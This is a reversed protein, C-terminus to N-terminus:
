QQGAEKRAALVQALRKEFDARREDIPRDFVNNVAYLGRKEDSRLQDINCDKFVCTTFALQQTAIDILL